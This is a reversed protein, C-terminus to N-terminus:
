SEVVLASRRRGSQRAWRGSAGPGVEGVFEVSDGLRVAACTYGSFRFEADVAKVLLAHTPEQNDVLAVVIGNQAVVLRVGVPVLFDPEIDVVAV